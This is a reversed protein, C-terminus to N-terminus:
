KQGDANQPLSSKEATKFKVVQAPTQRTAQRKVKHHLSEIM